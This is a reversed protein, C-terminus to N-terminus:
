PHSVTWHLSTGVKGEDWIEESGENALGMPVHDGVEFELPRRKKKAYSEQRSKVAKINEQIRSATAKAEEIIDPGFIV